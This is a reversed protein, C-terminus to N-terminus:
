RFLIHVIRPKMKNTFIIYFRPIFYVKFILCKMIYFQMINERMGKEKRKDLRGDIEKQRKFIIGYMYM